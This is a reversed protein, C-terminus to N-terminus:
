GGIHHIIGTVRDKASALSFDLPEAQGHSQHKGWVENRIISKIDTPTAGKRLPTLLDIGQSSFLCNVLRGSCSLRVRDCSNCFPKSLSRIFGVKLGSDPNIYTHAVRGQTPTTLHLAKCVEAELTQARTVTSPAWSSGCLPMFEIFRVEAAITEAFKILEFADKTPYDPVVVANLKLPINAEYAAELSSLVNPLVARGTQKAFRTPQLSDLSVNLGAIGQKLVPLHRKLLSGNTTMHVPTNLEHTLRLALQAAGKRLLPEGGTLRIKNVGMEVFISALATIEDDNMHHKAPPSEPLGEPPMCYTCQFNCAETLSIRLYSHPRGWRDKLSNQDFTM